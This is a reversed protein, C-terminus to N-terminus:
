RETSPVSQAGVQTYRSYVHFEPNLPDPETLDPGDATPRPSKFALYPTPKFVLNYYIYCARVQLSQFPRLLKLHDMVM